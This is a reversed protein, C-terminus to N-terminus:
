KGCCAEVGKGNCCPKDEGCCSKSGCKALSLGTMALIVIGALAPILIKKLM